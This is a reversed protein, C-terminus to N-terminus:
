SMTEKEYSNLYFQITQLNSRILLTILIINARNKEITKIPIQCRRALEAGPLYHKEIFTQYLMEDGSLTKAIKICMIQSDRHRPFKSTMKQISLDFQELQAELHILSDRVEMKETFSVSQPDMYQEEFPQGEATKLDSFPHEPTNKKQYRMWDFLRHKVLLYAYSFFPVNANFRFKDVAQNFAYLAISFIDDNEAYFSHTTRRVWHKIEPISDTVFRNRLETDGAQIKEIIKEPQDPRQFM